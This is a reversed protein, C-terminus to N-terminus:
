TIIYNMKLGGISTSQSFICEIRIATLAYETRVCAIHILESEIRMVKMTHVHRKSASELIIQMFHINEHLM